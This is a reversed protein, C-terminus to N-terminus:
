KRKSAREAHRKLADIEGRLRYLAARDDRLRALELPPIQETQLRANEAEVRALTEKEAQLLAGERRLTAAMQREYILGTGGALGVLLLGISWRRSARM